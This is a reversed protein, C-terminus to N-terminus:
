IYRVSFQAATDCTCLFHSFCKAISDVSTAVSAAGLFKSNDKNSIKITTQGIKVHLM